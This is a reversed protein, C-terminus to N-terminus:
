CRCSGAMLSQLDSFGDVDQICTLHDCCSHLANRCQQLNLQLLIQTIANKDVLHNIKAENATFITNYSM